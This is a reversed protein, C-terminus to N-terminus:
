EPRADRTLRDARRAWAIVIVGLGFLAAALVFAVIADSWRPGTCIQDFALPCVRQTDLAGVLAALCGLALSCIGGAWGLARRVDGPLSM